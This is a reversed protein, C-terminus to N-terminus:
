EWLLARYCVHSRSRVSLVIAGDVETYVPPVATDWVSNHIIEMPVFCVPAKAVQVGASVLPSCAVCRNM